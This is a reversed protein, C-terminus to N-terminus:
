RTMGSRHDAMLTRQHAIGAPSISEIFPSKMKGIPLSSDKIPSEDDVNMSTDIGAPSTSEIFSSKMKNIPLPNDMIPSEGDVHM